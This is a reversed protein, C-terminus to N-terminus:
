RDEPISLRDLLRTLLQWCRAVSAIEVREGPAHAGRIDPGFSLMALQPHARALLGCELGAHIVELRPRSGFEQQYIALCRHLLPADPDPTWGPYAGEAEATGGQQRIQQIIREALADRKADLLSRVHFSARVGASSIELPALNNSSEVVGQFDASMANIGYPLAHLAAFLERWRTLGREPRPAPALSLRLNPEERWQPRLATEAQRVADALTSFAEPPLALLASASRPLANIADGGSLAAVEFPPPLQPLTALLIRVAHARPLHIDIGSHGGLLGDVRLEAGQWDAPAPTAAVPLRAEVTVGGACGLYFAGWEETDLNLLIQGRLAGARLGHAGGMGAEEDVTLLVELAGHPLREDELAALALAVGIGNDAGLTTRRALLWGAEIEPTIPDRQFDHAHGSAQQCVMDLHGQLIIGPANERGPTAPKSLLLNGAPDISSTIGLNKAWADLHAVLAAEHKSARPIACLTAFHRWVAHPQLPAFVSAAPNPIM